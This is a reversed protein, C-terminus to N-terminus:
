GGTVQLTTSGNSLTAGPVAENAKLADLVAKKDLRPDSPKWFKSPIAAEDTIIAKPAVAKISLTANPLELRDVEATSMASSIATKLLEAQNKFRERRIELKTIQQDIAEGFGKLTNIRDVAEGVLEKLNTEGEIADQEAEEDDGIVDRINALLSAAAEAENRIETRLDAKRRKPKAEITETQMHM